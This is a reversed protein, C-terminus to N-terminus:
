KIAKIVIDGDGPSKNNKLESISPKIENATIDPLDESGVNKPIQNWDPLETAKKHLLEKYLEETIM